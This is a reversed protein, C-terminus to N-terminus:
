SGLTIRLINSFSVGPVLVCQSGSPTIVTWQTELVGGALGPDCPLPLIFGAGGATVPVPVTVLFPLIQCPGCPIKGQVANLNLLAITSQPDAGTVQLTFYGNGLAAPWPAAQTGALGCGGGVNQVLSGTGFADLTRALVDQETSPGPSENNWVVLGRSDEYNGGSAAMCLGVSTTPTTSLPQPGVFTSGECTICTAADLGILRVSHSLIANDEWAVYAKGPRWGVAPASGAASTSLTVPAGVTLSGNWRVSVARAIEFTSTDTIAAVVYDAGALGGGDVDVAIESDTTDFLRTSSTLLTGDRGVLTVYPDSDGLLPKRLWAVAYAGANGGATRSISPKSNFSFGFIDAAIGFTATLMPDGTADVDFTAGEIGQGARDWVVMVQKYPNKLLEGGIDVDTLADLADTAGRVATSLAGTTPTCVQVYLDDQAFQQQVWSVAFRSGHNADAVRPGSTVLGSSGFFVTGGILAGAGDLRQGRVASSAASFTRRWVVLYHATSADWAVDPQADDNTSGDVTFAASILPDLVLPWAADRVFSAPLSLEIDEGDIRVDGATSRGVADIGTVTGLCVGGAAGHFAHSGDAARQPAGAVAGSLRGRVVLDGDGALPAAFVFSQLLGDRRVEYREEIGPARAYVATMGDAVPEAAALAIRTSGRAVSLAEFRLSQERPAGRGLAPVFTVGRADFRAEYSQAGGIWGTDTRALGVSETVVQIRPPAGPDSQAFSAGALAALALSISLFSVRHM